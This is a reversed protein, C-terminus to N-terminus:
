KLLYKPFPLIFRNTIKERIKIIIPEDQLNADLIAVEVGVAVTMEGAIDEDCLGNPTIILPSFMALGSITCSM